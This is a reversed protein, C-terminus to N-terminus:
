AGMPAVQVRASRPAPTGRVKGRKYGKRLVYSCKGDETIGALVLKRGIAIAEAWLKDATADVPDRVPKSRGGRSNIAVRDIAVGVLHAVVAHGAEHVALEYQERVPENEDQM